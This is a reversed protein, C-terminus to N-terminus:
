WVFSSLCGEYASVCNVTLQSLQSSRIVAPDLWSRWRVLRTTILHLLLPLMRLRPALLVPLLLVQGTYALWFFHLM